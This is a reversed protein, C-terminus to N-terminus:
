DHNETPQENSAITKLAQTALEPYAGAAVQVANVVHPDALCREDHKDIVRDVYMQSLATNEFATHWTKGIPESLGVRSLPWPELLRQIEQLLPDSSAAHSALRHLDPLFRFCFDVSYHTSAMDNPPAPSEFAEQIFQANVDRYAYFQAARFLMEAAWVGTTSDFEPLGSPLSKRYLKETEVLFRGVDAREDDGLHTPAVVHTRGDNM